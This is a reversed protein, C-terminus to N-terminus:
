NDAFDFTYSFEDVGREILVGLRIDKADITPSGYDWERDPTGYRKGGIDFQFLHYNEFLMAAQIIEHLGRLSTTM